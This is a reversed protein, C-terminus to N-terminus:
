EKLKSVLASIGLCILWIGIFIPILNVVKLPLMKSFIGLFAIFVGVLSLPIGVVKGLKKKDYKKKEEESLTNYGAILNAHGLYILVGVIIFIAAVIYLVWVPANLSDYVTM